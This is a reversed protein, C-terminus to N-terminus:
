QLVLFLQLNKERIKRVYAKVVTWTTLIFLNDKTRFYGTSTHIYFYWAYGHKYRGGKKVAWDTIEACLVRRVFCDCHQLAEEFRM